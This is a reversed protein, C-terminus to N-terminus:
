GAPAYAEVYKCLRAFDQGGKDRILIAEVDWGHRQYFRIARGQRETQVSLKHCGAAGCREEFAVLLRAGTGAGRWRRAIMLESLHGVGGSYRGAAVGVLTGDPERVVLCVPVGRWDYALDHGAARHHELWARGLFTAVDGAPAGELLEVTISDTRTHGGM